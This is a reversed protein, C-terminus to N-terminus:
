SEEGETEVCLCRAVRVLPFPIAGRGGALHRKDAQEALRRATEQCRSAASPDLWEREGDSDKSRRVAMFVHAWPKSATKTRM